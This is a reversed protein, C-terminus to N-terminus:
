NCRLKRNSFRKELLIVKGRSCHFKKEKGTGTNESEGHMSCTRVLFPDEGLYVLLDQLYRISETRIAPAHSWRERLHSVVACVDKRSDLRLAPTSALSDIVFLASAGDTFVLRWEEDDYLYHALKLYRPFIATPILVHTIDYAHRLAKFTDVTDLARLYRAFFQPTRIILRGDIFVKKPPYHNWILYGGYRIGNFINGEIPHTDLYKAAEEPYRFPSRLSDRPCKRLMGAHAAINGITLICLILLLGPRICKSLLAKPSYAPFTSLTYQLLPICIFFYLLINRKASYALSLFAAFLLLHAIRTRRHNLAFLGLMLISIFVVVYVTRADATNFMAMLPINESVNFAYINKLSPSIRGFLTFPFWLARYTYPNVLTSIVCLGFVAAFQFFLRRDNVSAISDAAPSEVNPFLLYFSREILYVGFIVFGLIFLGQSNVWVIQIPVCWYLLTIKGTATFRELLYLFLAICLLTIIIPRALV